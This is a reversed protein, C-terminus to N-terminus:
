CCPEVPVTGSGQGRAVDWSTCHRILHPRLMAIPAHWRMSVLRLQSPTFFRILIWIIRVPNISEECLETVLHQAGTRHWSNDCSATTGHLGIFFLRPRSPTFSSTFTTTLALSSLTRPKWMTPESADSIM